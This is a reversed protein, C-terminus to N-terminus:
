TSSVCGTSVLTTPAMTAPSASSSSASTSASPRSTRRSPSRRSTSRRASTTRSSALSSTLRRPRFRPRRRQRRLRPAARRTPQSRRLTRRARLSVGSQLPLLTPSDARSLPRHEPLSPSAGEVDRPAAKMDFSVERAAHEITIASVLIRRALLIGLQGTPGAFPWCNGVNIDPVLATAPPRGPIVKPSLLGGWRAIPQEFTDSTIHPIIRGGASFLAYDALALTDKSHRLLAADILSSLLGAVDGNDGAASAPVAQSTPLRALAAKVARDAYVTSEALSSRVADEGTQRFGASQREELEIKATALEAQLVRLFEHRSIIAGAQAQRDLQGDQWAELAVENAALFDAWSAPESIITAAPTAPASPTPLGALLASKQKAVEDSVSSPLEQQAVFVDRMARWFAPDIELSKTLPDIQVALKAPLHAEIADAATQALRAAELAQKASREAELVRQELSVFDKRQASVRGDLATMTRDSLDLRAALVQVDQAVRRGQSSVAGLTGEVRTLRELLEEVSGPPLALSSLPQQGDHSGVPRARWSSPIDELPSTPSSRRGVLSAVLLLGLLAALPMAVKRWDVLDLSHRFSDAVKAPKEVIWSVVAVLSNFALILGVLIARLIGLLLEGLGAVPNPLNLSPRPRKSRGASRGASRQQASASQDPSGLPSTQAGPHFRVIFSDEEERNSPRPDYGIGDLRDNNSRDGELAVLDDEASGEGAPDCRGGKGAKRRRKKCEVVPAMGVAGHATVKGGSRRRAKRRVRGDTSDSESASDGPRYKFTKADDSIRRTRRRSTTKTPKAPDEDAASNSGLSDNDYSDSSQDGGSFEQEYASSRDDSERLASKKKPTVDAPEDRSASSGRVFEGLGSFWGGSSTNNLGGSGSAVEAGASRSRSRARKAEMEALLREEEDFGYDSAQSDHSRDASLALDSSMSVDAASNASLYSADQVSRPPTLSRRPGLSPRFSSSFSQFGSAGDDNDYTDDAPFPAGQAVRPKLLYSVPSLARAAGAIADLVPSKTRERRRRAREEGLAAVDDVPMTRPPPPLPGRRTTSSSPAAFLPSPPPPHHTEKRTYSASSTYSGNVPSYNSTSSSAPAFRGEAQHIATAISLGALPPADSVLEVM